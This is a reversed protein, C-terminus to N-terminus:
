AVLYPKCSADWARRREWVARVISSWMKEYLHMGLGTPAVKKTIKLPFFPGIAAEDHYYSTSFPHSCSNLLRVRWRLPTVHAVPFVRRLFPRAPDQHDIDLSHQGHRALKSAAKSGIGTALNHEHRGLHSHKRRIHRQSKAFSSIIVFRLWRHRVPWIGTRWM